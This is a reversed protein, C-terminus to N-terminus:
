VKIDDFFLELEHWLSGPGGMGVLSLEGTGIIAGVAGLRDGADYRDAVRQLADRHARALRKKERAQRRQEAAAHERAEAQAAAKDALPVIRYKRGPVVEVLARADAPPRYEAPLTALASRM